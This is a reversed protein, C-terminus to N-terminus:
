KPQTSWDVRANLLSAIFNCVEGIGSWQRTMKRVVCRILIRLIIRSWRGTNIPSWCAYKCDIAKTTQAPRSLRQSLSQDKGFSEKTRRPYNVRIMGIPIHNYVLKPGRVDIEKFIFVYFLVFCELVCLSIEFCVKRVDHVNKSSQGGFM